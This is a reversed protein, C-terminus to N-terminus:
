DPLVTVSILFYSEHIRLKWEYKEEGYDMWTNEDVKVYSENM